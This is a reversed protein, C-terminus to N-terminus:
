PVDLILSRRQPLTAKIARRQTESASSWAAIEDLSRLCGKCLGSAADMACVGICPSLTPDEVKAQAAVDIWAQADRQTM